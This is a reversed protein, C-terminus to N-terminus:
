NELETGLNSLGLMSKLYILIAEAGGLAFRVLRPKFTVCGYILQVLTSGTLMWLCAARSLEPHLGVFYFSALSTKRGIYRDISKPDCQDYIHEHRVKAAACIYLPYEKGIPYSFRLDEGVAWRTNLNKQPFKAVIERRWVTYGGGLWQTRIEKSVNHISSNYGSSLVRGQLPSSMLFFGWLKSHRRPPANVINFGVGAANEEIRNWFDIMKELAGTELVLDDDIFGVLTIADKLKTIGMNRQRIQGPPSCEYYEVPLRDSFSAAVERVSQGGDVIIVQGCRETQQSLTNLVEKLKQPRNKTPIIFALDKGTYLHRPESM